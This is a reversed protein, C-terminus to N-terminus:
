HKIFLKGLKKFMGVFDIRNGIRSMIAYFVAGMAIFYIIVFTLKIIHLM